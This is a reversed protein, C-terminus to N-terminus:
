KLVGRLGDFFDKTIGLSVGGMCGAARMCNQSKLVCEVADNTRGKGGMKYLQQFAAECRELGKGGLEKGGCLEGMRICARREKPYLVQSYIYYGAGGLVGLIVLLVLLKKM